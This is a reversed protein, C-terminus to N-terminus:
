LMLTRYRISGAVQGFRNGAIWLWRAGGTKTVVKPLTVVLMVWSKWGGFRPPRPRGEDRLLRAIRVRGAGYKFGQRWLDGAAQRYRYHVIADPLGVIDIGNTWCRYSFELDEVPYFGPRLYGIREFVDRRLGYNSGRLCPFLGHFTGVADQASRGRSVALWKPNLKRLDNPGTVVEHDILGLAISAVWGPAVVDDADCFALNTAQASAIGVEVAYSKDSREQATVLHIRPHRNSHSRVIDATADTSNNDVVIIEWTGDFNQTALADLQEGIHVAENHAPLIVSIEVQLVTVGKLSPRRTPQGRM